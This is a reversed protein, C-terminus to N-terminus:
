RSSVANKVPYYRHQSTSPLRRRPFGCQQLRQTWFVSYTVFFDSCVLAFHREDDGAPSVHQRFSSDLLDRNGFFLLRTEDLSVCWAQLPKSGLM